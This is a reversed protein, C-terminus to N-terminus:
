TAYPDTEMQDEWNATTEAPILGKRELDALVEIVWQQCFKAPYKQASAKVKNKDKDSIQAIPYLSEIGHSNVRKTEIDTRYPKNQTPGGTSHYWTGNRAGEEALILIWHRAGGTANLKCVAIYLTLDVM